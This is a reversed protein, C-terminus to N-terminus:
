QPSRHSQVWQWEQRVTRWGCGFDGSSEEEGVADSHSEPFPWRKSLGTSLDWDKDEKVGLSDSVTEWECRCGRRDKACMAKGAKRVIWQGIWYHGRREVGSKEIDAVAAQIYIRLIWLILDCKIQGLRLENNKQGMAAGRLSNQIKTSMLAMKRTVQNSVLSHVLAVFKRNGWIWSALLDQLSVKSYTKVRSDEWLWQRSWTMIMESKCSPLLTKQLLEQGRDEERKFGDESHNQHTTMDPSCITKLDFSM